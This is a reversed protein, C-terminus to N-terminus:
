RRLVEPATVTAACAPCLRYAQGQATYAFQMRTGCACDNPWTRAPLARLEAAIGESAPYHAPQTAPTM